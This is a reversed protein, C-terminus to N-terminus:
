CFAGICEIKCVFECAGVGVCLVCVSVIVFKWEIFEHPVWISSTSSLFGVLSSFTLATLVTSVSSSGSFNAVGSSFGFFRREIPSFFGFFASSGSFISGDTSSGSWTWTSVTLSFSKFGDDFGVDRRPDFFSFDGSGFVMSTYVQSAGFLLHCEPAKQM